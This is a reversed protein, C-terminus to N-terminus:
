VWLMLREGWYPLHHSIHDNNHEIGRGSQIGVEMGMYVTARTIRVMSTKSLVMITRLDNEEMVIIKIVQHIHGLRLDKEM